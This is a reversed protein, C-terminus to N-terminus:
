KARGEDIEFFDFYTKIDPRGGFGYKEKYTEFSDRQPPSDRWGRKIMFENWVFIETESRNTGHEKCWQMVEQDSKGALVQEKVAEYSVGLFDICRGDFGSGLYPIYEDPLEARAHMRIKELMRPFYVIGDLTEYPSKFM